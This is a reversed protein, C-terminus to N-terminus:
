AQQGEAAGPAKKKEDTAKILLLLFEFTKDQKLIREQAKERFYRNLIRRM